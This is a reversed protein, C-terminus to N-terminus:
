VDSASSRGASCVARVRATRSARDADGEVTFTVCLGKPGEMVRTLIEAMSAIIDARADNM